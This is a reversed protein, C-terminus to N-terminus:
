VKPTSSVPFARGKGMANVGLGASALEKAYVQEFNKRIIVLKKFAKEIENYSQMEVGILDLGKEEDELTLEPKTFFENAITLINNYSKIYRYETLAHDVLMKHYKIKIQKLSLKKNSLRANAGIAGLSYFSSALSLTCPASHMPLSMPAPSMSRPVSLDERSNNNSTLECLSDYKSKADQYIQYFKEVNPSSLNDIKAVSLKPTVMYLPVM